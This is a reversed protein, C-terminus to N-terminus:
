ERYVTPDSTLVTLFHQCAEEETAFIREDNRNGKESYFVTWGLYDNILVYREPLSTDDIAWASDSVGLSALHDKLQTVNVAYLLKIRRM